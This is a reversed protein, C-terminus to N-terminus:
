AGGAASALQNLYKQLEAQLKGDLRSIPRQAPISSRVRSGTSSPMQAYFQKAKEARSAKASRVRKKNIEIPKLGFKRAIERANQFRVSPGAPARDVFSARWAIAHKYMNGGEIAAGGQHM